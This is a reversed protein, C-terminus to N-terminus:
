QIFAPFFTGIKYPYWLVITTVMPERTAHNYATKPDDCITVHNPELLRWKGASPTCCALLSSPDPSYTSGLISGHSCEQWILSLIGHQGVLYGAFAHGYYSYQAWMGEIIHMRIASYVIQLHNLHVLSQDYFCFLLKCKTLSGRRLEGSSPLSITVVIAATRLSSSQENAWLDILGHVLREWVLLIIM